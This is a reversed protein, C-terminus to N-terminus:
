TMINKVIQVCICDVRTIIGGGWHLEYLLCNGFALWCAITFLKERIHSLVILWLHIPFMKLPFSLHCCHRRWSLEHSILLACLSLATSKSSAMVIQTSGPSHLAASALSPNLVHGWVWGLVQSPGADFNRSKINSYEKQHHCQLLTPVTPDYGILVAQPGMSYICLTPQHPFPLPSIESQCPSLM